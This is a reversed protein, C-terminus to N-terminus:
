IKYRSTSKLYKYNLIPNNKIEDEFKKIINDVALDLIERKTLTSNKKQRRRELLDILRKSM